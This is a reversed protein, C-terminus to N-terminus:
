KKIPPNLVNVSLTIKKKKKAMGTAQLLGQAWSWIQAVATVVASDKVALGGPFKKFHNNTPIYM